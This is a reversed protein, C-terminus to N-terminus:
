EIEVLNEVEGARTFRGVLMETSLNHSLLTRNGRRGLARYALWQSAGVQVRYGVAVDNPVVALNEAVTLQRWTFPRASRRRDFDFWLPALLARGHATQQLHLAEATCELEGCGPDARWEGLALPLVLARARGNTLVVERSQAPQRLKVGAPLPVTGRYEIAGAKRAIVADALYAFRDNKALLISREICVGGRFRMELELYDVERDTFWCTEEWASMPVLPQGDVSLQCDWVGSCLVEGASQFEISNARNPYAALIREAHRPGRSCMVARHAAASRRSIAGPKWPTRTSPFAFVPPPLDPM